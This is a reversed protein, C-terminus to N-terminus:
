FAPLSQNPINLIPDLIQCKQYVRAKPDSNLYHTYVVLAISPFFYLSNSYTLFVEHLFHIKVSLEKEFIFPCLSLYFTNVIVSNM